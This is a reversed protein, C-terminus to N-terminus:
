KMTIPLFIFWEDVTRRTTVDGLLEQMEFGITNFIGVFYRYDVSAEASEDEYTYSAGSPSGSKEAFLMESTLKIPESEGEHGNGGVVERYIHFGVVDSEDATQWRLVVQENEYSIDSMVFDVSTPSFAQVEASDTIGQSTAINIASENPLNTTDVKTIFEVMIEFAEGPNLDMGFGAAGSSTLDNWVLEGVNPIDPEPSAVATYSMYANNYTDALPVTTMVVTGTNTIRITFSIREGVRAPSPTNLTKSLEFLIPAVYGFDVNNEDHQVAPMGVIRAEDGNYPMTANNGTYTYGELAGGPAFNSPDIEVTYVTSALVEFDYFGDGNTTGTDDGIGGTDSMTVTTTVLGTSDYLNILVGNIGTESPDKIGDSNTDFWVFDGLTSKGSILVEIGVDDSDTVTPVPDTGAMAGSVTAVNCSEGGNICPAQAALASTDANATFRTVVEIVDGPALDGETITLDSWDLQGDDANDDTTPTSGNISDYSLYIANYTDMLPLMTITVNGTNTIRITFSIPQGVTVPEPTNLTKSLALSPMAPPPEYFGFDITLNDVIGVTVVTGAPDHSTDGNTNPDNDATVLGGTPVAVVTGAPTGVTVTYIDNAPVTITYYGMADTTDTYLTGDSGVATVVSGVVPTIVGTTALGDNDDEIWVRDGIMVPPIPPYSFDQALNDPMTGDLTVIATSDSGGDPDYSPTTIYGLPLTNIDVTVTYTGYSLDAFLYTGSMTTTTTITSGDSYELEVVVGALPVDPGDMVGDGDQDMDGWITDGISGWPQYFGFDVTMNV